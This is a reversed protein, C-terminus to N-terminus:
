RPAIIRPEFQDLRFPDGVLLHPRRQDLLNNDKEKENEKRKENEEKEDKDRQKVCGADRNMEM